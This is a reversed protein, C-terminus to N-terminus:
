KAGSATSPYEVRLAGLSALRDPRSEFEDGRNVDIGLRIRELGPGASVNLFYSGATDAAVSGVYRGPGSQQLLVGATDLNPMVVAVQPSLHNLFRDEEDLANLTVQIRGDVVEAVATVSDGTSTPRMAWRALQILFKDREGWDTWSSAWRDGLDTALAVCRGAGYQWTSLIPNAQGAPEEATLPMQVLSSQKPTTMVFGTIPPFAQTVGSLSEHSSEVDVAIGADDEYILPRSVRRAERMFIQPIAQPSIVHYFKGGGIAAMSRLLNVDAEDGIAVSTLSIGAACMQRALDLDDGPQTQGDSLVIVHKLAADSNALKRFGVQLAPSMFTGGGAALRGILRPVHTGEGVKQLPVIEHAASDFSIMGVYDRPSLVAGRRDRGGQGVAAERGADIGLQRRGVDAGGIAQVKLNAIYFDVPMAEEVVTKSWGGAGFSNPGGVMMLGCGLDHTNKVLSELQAESFYRVSDASDGNSYPVDDLIVLDYGQLEALTAPMRDARARTVEIHADALVDGITSADDTAFVDSIVLVRGAGRIQAFARSLNNERHVDAAPDDLTIKATYGYFGPDVLQDRLTFFNQEKDLVM